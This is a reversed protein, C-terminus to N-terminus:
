LSPSRRFTARSSTAATRLPWVIPEYSGHTMASSSQPKVNHVAGTEIPLIPSLPGLPQSERTSHWSPLRALPSGKSFSLLLLLLLAVNKSSAM